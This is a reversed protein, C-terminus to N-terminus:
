RHQGWDFPDPALIFQRLATRPTQGTEGSARLSYIGAKLRSTDFDGQFLMAELPRASLSLVRPGTLLQVKVPGSGPATRLKWHVKEGIYYEDLPTSIVIPPEEVAQLSVDDIFFM